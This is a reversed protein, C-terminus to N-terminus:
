VYNKEDEYRGQLHHNLTTTFIMKMDNELSDILKKLKEISEIGATRAKEESVGLYKALDKNTKLKGLKMATAICAEDKETLKNIM